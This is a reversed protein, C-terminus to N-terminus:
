HLWQLKLIVSRKMYAWAGCLPQICSSETWQLEHFTATRTNYAGHVNCRASTPNNTVHVFLDSLAWVATGCELRIVSISSGPFYLWDLHCYFGSFFLLPFNWKSIFVTYFMYQTFFCLVLLYPVGWVILLILCSDRWLCLM